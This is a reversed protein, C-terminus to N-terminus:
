AMRSKLFSIESRERKIANELERDRTGYIAIFILMVTKQYCFIKFADRKSLLVISLGDEM